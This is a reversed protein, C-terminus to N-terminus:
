KNAPDFIGIAVNVLYHSISSLGISKTRYVIFGLSMSILPIFIWFDILHSKVLALYHALWFLISTTLFVMIESLGFKRLHKWLLGRFTFEEIVVAPLNTTNFVNFLVDINPFSIKYVLSFFFSPILVLITPLLVLIYIQSRPFDPKVGFNFVRKLLAVSVFATGLGSFIGYPLPVYSFTIIVGSLLFIGVFLRDVNVSALEREELWLACCILLYTVVQYLYEQKNPDTGFLFEALKSEGFRLILLLILIGISTIQRFGYEKPSIHM